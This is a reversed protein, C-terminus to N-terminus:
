IEIVSYVKKCLRYLFCECEATSVLKEGLLRLSQDKMIVHCFIRLMERGHDSSVKTEVARLILHATSALVLAIADVRTKELNKKVQFVNLM